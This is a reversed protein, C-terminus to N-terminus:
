EWLRKGTYRNPLYVSQTLHCNTPIIALSLSRFDLARSLPALVCAPALSGDALAAGTLSFYFKLGTYRHRCFPISCISVLGETAVPGRPETKNEEWAPTASANSAQGGAQTGAGVVPRRFEARQAQM